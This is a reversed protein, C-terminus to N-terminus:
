SDGQASRRQILDRIRAASKYDEKALLKEQLQELEALTYSQLSGRKVQDLKFDPDITALSLISTYSYIPSQTRIALAIADSCRAEVVFDEGAATRLLLQTLFVDQRMEYIVVERLKANLTWLINALLDHTLPRAPQMNEMAIAISQAAAEGIIVPMRQGTDVAELILAYFGPRSESQSLAVVALEHKEM